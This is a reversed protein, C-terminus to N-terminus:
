RKEQERTRSIQSAFKVEVDVWMCRVAESANMACRRWQRTRKRMRASM